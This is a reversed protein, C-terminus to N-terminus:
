VLSSVAFIKTGVKSCNNGNDSCPYNDGTRGFRTGQPNGASTPPMSWVSAEYKDVCIPGVQVMNVPCAAFSPKPSVFLFVVVGLMFMSFIHFKMIIYRRKKSNSNV